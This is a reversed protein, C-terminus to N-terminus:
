CLSINRFQLSLYVKSNMRDTARRGLVKRVRENPIFIAYPSLVHICYKNPLANAYLVSQLKQQYIGARWVNEIHIHARTRIHVIYTYGWARCQWTRHIDTPPSHFWLNLFLLFFAWKFDNVLMNKKRLSFFLIKTTYSCFYVCPVLCFICTQHFYLVYLAITGCFVMYKAYKRHFWAVM